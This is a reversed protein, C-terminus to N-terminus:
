IFDVLIPCYKGQGITHAYIQQLRKSLAYVPQDSTDVIKQGPNLLTTVSDVNEICHKQTGFDAVNQRLLPLISNFYPVIDARNRRSKYVSWSTEPVFESLSAVHKLCDFEKKRKDALVTSNAKKDPINM